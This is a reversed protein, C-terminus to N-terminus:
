DISPTAVDGSVGTVVVEPLDNSTVEEFETMSPSTKIESKPSGSFWAFPNLYGLVSTVESIDQASSTDSLGKAFSNIVELLSADDGAFIKLSELGASTFGSNIKNAKIEYFIENFLEDALTTQAHKAIKPTAGLKIAAKAASKLDDIQDRPLDAFIKDINHNRIYLIQKPDEMLIDFASKICKSFDGSVVFADDRDVLITIADKTLQNVRDVGLCAKTSPTINIRLLLTPDSLIEKLLNSVAKECNGYTLTNVEKMNINQLLDQGQKLEKAISDEISEISLSRSKLEADILERTKPDLSEINLWSAHNVLIEIVMKKVLTKAHASVEGNFVPSVGSRLENIAAKEIENTKKMGKYDAKDGFFKFTNEHINSYLFLSHNDTLKKEVEEIADFAHQTLTASGVLVPSLNKNLIHDIANDALAKFDVGKKELDAKTSDDLSMYLYNEVAKKSTADRLEEAIKALGAETYKTFSKNHSLFGPEVGFKLAQAAREIIIGETLCLMKLSTVDLDRVKLCDAGRILADTLDKRIIPMISDKAPEVWQAGHLICLSVFATNRSTTLLINKPDLEAWSAKDLLLNMIKSVTEYPFAATPKQALSLLPSVSKTDSIFSLKPDAGSELLFRVAPINSAKIAEVLLTTKTGMYHEISNIKSTDLGNKFLESNFEPKRIEDIAQQFTLPNKNPYSHPM